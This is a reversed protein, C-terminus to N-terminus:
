PLLHRLFAYAFGFYVMVGLLDMISTIVPASLIAPDAEVKKAAFPLIIGILSGLVTVTIMSLSVVLLVDSTLDKTIFALGAELAGIALGLTLAVPFDRGVIRLFDRLTPRVQGLAMARIVLTATQSGTNGGMDIIPAIFAALILVAGLMEQQAAIFTSTFAGFFTLLALWLFRGMFIRRLPDRLMDIDEGKPPIGPTGGFRVIRRMEREQIERLMREAHIVGLLRGEKDVMPLLNLRKEVFMEAVREEPAYASVAVHAERALQILRHQPPAKVLRSLEVYGKFLRREGLVFVVELDQPALPSFHVEDLAERATVSEPLALYAPDMLRGASGEPFGLVLGVQTRAEEPLERLVRKVVKAPLEELLEAQRERDM